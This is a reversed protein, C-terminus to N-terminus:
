AKAQWGTHQESVTLTCFSGWPQLLYLIRLVFFGGMLGEDTMQQLCAKFSNQSSGKAHKWETFPTEDGSVMKIELPFDEMSSALICISGLLSVSLPMPLVLHGWHASPWM